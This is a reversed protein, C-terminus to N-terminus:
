GKPLPLPAEVVLPGAAAFGGLEVLVSPLEDVVVDLGIMRRLKSLYLTQSWKQRWKRNPETPESEM